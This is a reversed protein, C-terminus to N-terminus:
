NRGALSQVISAKELHTKDCARDYQNIIALIFKHTSTDGKWSLWTLGAQSHVDQSLFCPHRHHSGVSHDPLHSTAGQILVVETGM